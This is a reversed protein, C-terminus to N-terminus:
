QRREQEKPDTHGDHHRRVVNKRRDPHLPIMEKRILVRPIAIWTLSNGDEETRETREREKGRIRKRV